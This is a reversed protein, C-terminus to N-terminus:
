QGMAEDLAAKSKGRNRADIEPPGRRPAPPKGQYPRRTSGMAGSTPDANDYIPPASVGHEEMLSDMFGNITAGQNELGHGPGFRKNFSRYHEQLQADHERVANQVAALATKQQEPGLKGTAAQEVWGEANAEAGGLHGRVATTVDKTAANGGRFVSALGLIADQQAVPNDAKINSLSMRLRKWVGADKRVDATNTEWDKLEQRLEGRDSRNGAARAEDARVADLNAQAGKFGGMMAARKDAEQEHFQNEGHKFDFNEGLVMHDNFQKHVKQVDEGALIAARAAQAAQQDRPSLSLGSLSTVFDTAAQQRQQERQRAPAISVGPDNAGFRITYPRDREATTRSADYRARADPYAASAADFATKQPAYAAQDMKAQEETMMDKTAQERSSQVDPSFGRSEISTPAPSAPPGGLGPEVPGDDSTLTLGTPIFNKPRGFSETPDVGTQPPMPTGQRQYIDNQDVSTSTRGRRRAAIEPPVGTPAQPEVPAQPQPGVDAMPGPVLEGRGTERGTAPDYAVTSHLMTKALEPNNDALAKAADISAKREMESQRQSFDRQDRTERQDIIRNQYDQNGQNQDSKRQADAQQFQLEQDFQQKKQRRNLVDTLADGLSNIGETVDANSKIGPYGETSFYRGM